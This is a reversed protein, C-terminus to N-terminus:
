LEIKLEQGTLAHYLNQLQHLHKINPLTYSGMLHIGFGDKMVHPYARLKILKKHVYKEYRVKEFGCRLLIEETLPIPKVRKPNDHISLFEHAKIKRFGLSDVFDTFYGLWNGIMLENSNIM